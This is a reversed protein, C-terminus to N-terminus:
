CVVVADAGRGATMGAILQQLDDSRLAAKRAGLRRALEVKDPELDIALVQCGAARLIQAALQGILGLGLVVVTEGLQAQATRVGQLAIAGLTVFAASEDAVGEPIHVCLPAPVSNMEAHNAFGAGACAVRDGVSFSQVNEGLEVVRGACSYGLPLSADLKAF